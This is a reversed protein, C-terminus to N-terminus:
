IHITPYRDSLSVNSFRPSVFLPIKTFGEAPVNPQTPFNKFLWQLPHDLYRVALAYNIFMTGAFM